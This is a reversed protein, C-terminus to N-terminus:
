FFGGGAGFGGGGRGFGGGAPVFGGNGAPKPPINFEMGGLMFLVSGTDKWLQLQAPDLIASLTSASLDDVGAAVPLLMWNTETCHVNKLRDKVINGLIPRLKARQQETLELRYDVALLVTEAIYRYRFHKRKEEEARHEESIFESLTKQWLPHNLLCQNVVDDGLYVTGAQRCYYSELGKIWDPVEAESPFLEEVHRSHLEAVGRAAVELHRRQVDTLPVTSALRAIEAKLVAQAHQTSWDDKGAALSCRPLLSLAACVLVAARCVCRKKAAITEGVGFQMLDTGKDVATNRGSM